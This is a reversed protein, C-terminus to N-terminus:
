HHSSSGGNMRATRETHQSGAPVAPGITWASLYPPHVAVAAPMASRMARSSQGASTMASRLASTGTGSARARSRSRPKLWLARSAVASPASQRTGTQADTSSRARAVCVWVRNVGVSRDLL